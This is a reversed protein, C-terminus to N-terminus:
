DKVNVTVAEEYYFYKQARSDYGIAVIRIVANSLEGPYTLPLTSLTVRGEVYNGNAVLYLYDTDKDGQGTNGVWVSHIVAMATDWAVDNILDDWAPHQAYISTEWRVPASDYVGIYWVGGEGGLVPLYAITAAAQEKLRLENLGYFYVNEPLAPGLREGKIIPSRDVYKTRLGLTKGSRIPLTPSNLFYSTGTVPDYGLLWWDGHGTAINIRWPEEGPINIRTGNNPDGYYYALYDGVWVLVGGSKLWASALSQQNEEGRWIPPNGFAPLIDVGMIVVDPKMETMLTWLGFTDILVVNIGAASLISSVKSYWAMIEAENGVASNNFLPDYYFYVKKQSPWRDVFHTFLMLRVWDLGNTEITLSASIAGKEDKSAASSSIRIKEAAVSMPAEAALQKTTVQPIPSPPYAAASVRFDYESGLSWPLSFKVSVTEEPEVRIQEVAQFDGDVAISVPNGPFIRTDGVHIERVELQDKSTNKIILLVSNEGAEKEFLVLFNFDVTKGILMPLIQSVGIAGVIVIIVIILVKRREM